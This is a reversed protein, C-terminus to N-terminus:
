NRSSEFHRPYPPCFSPRRPPHRHPRRFPLPVPSPPPFRHLSAKPPSPPPPPPPTNARPPPAVPTLRACLRADAPILLCVCLRVCNRVHVSTCFLCLRLLTSTGWSPQVVGLLCFLPPLTVTCVCATVYLTSPFIAPRFAFFVGVKLNLCTELM